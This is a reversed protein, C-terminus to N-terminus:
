DLQAKAKLKENIAQYYVEIIEATLRSQLMSDRLDISKPRGEAVEQCATRITEALASVSEDAVLWYSQEPLERAINEDCLICPTGLVGAEFVTMGQTEFGISTQMLIDSSQIKQLMQNHTVRGTFSIQESLGASEVFQRAKQELAGTGYIDVKASVKALAFAELFEMLRKEQSMRGSWLLRVESAEKASTKRPQKQVMFDDDVGTPIVRIDKTAGMKKALEAFHKSPAIVADSALNIQQLFSWGNFVLGRKPAKTLRAFVLSLAGFVIWSGLKGTVKQMGVELNTHMTQVVPIDHLEAFRIGLIAGWQDAQLHVVDVPTKTLNPEVFALARKLRLSTAYENDRTLKISPYTLVGERPGFRAAPAVVTVKHGARDLFKKQLLVSSQAGGLSDPHQDSFIAIHL